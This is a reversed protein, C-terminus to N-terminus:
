FQIAPGRLLISPERRAVCEARPCIRCAPGVPVTIQAAAPEAPRLLMHAKTTAPGNMGMPFEQVGYSWVQFVQAEPTEIMASLPRFPASLAQYLPLLACSEGLRPLNMGRPAKRYIMAGSGDCIMLGAGELLDAMRRLVLDVPVDLGAAIQAPDQSERLAAHLPADPLRAQDRAEARIWIEALSQAADSALGAEPRGSAWWAELEERPSLPGSSDEFSDLYAVLVQATLALRESDQDLNAHFRDRWDREMEPEAVLISSTSRLSTIASLIEHLTTLLHPDQTMRDALDVLRQDHSEARDHIQVLLAAWGPFRTAFEAIRDAEVDQGASAVRLGAIMAEERGSELEVVPVDMAKALGAIVRATPARRDHEILNLYAPSIGAARAIDAQAHGLSLRRERIRLGIPIRSPLTQTM